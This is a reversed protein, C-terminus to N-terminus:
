VSGKSMEKDCHFGQLNSFARGLVWFFSGLSCFTASKEAQSRGAVKVHPNPNHGVAAERAALVAAHFSKLHRM